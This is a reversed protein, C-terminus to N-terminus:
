KCCIERLGSYFVIECQSAGARAVVTPVAAVNPTGATHVHAHHLCCHVICPKSVPLRIYARTLVARCAATCCKNESREFLLLPIQTHAYTFYARTHTHTSTRANNGMQEVTCALRCRETQYFCAFVESSQALITGRSYNIAGPVRQTNPLWNKPCM